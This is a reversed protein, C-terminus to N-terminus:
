RDLARVLLDKIEGVGEELSRVRANTDDVKAELRDVRADLGAVRANSADFRERTQVSLVNVAALIAKHGARDAELAAIRADHKALM